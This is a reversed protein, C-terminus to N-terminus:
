LLILGSTGEFLQVVTIEESVDIVQATREEGKPTTVEVLEGYGVGSINELFLLPGSIEKVSFFRRANHLFASM